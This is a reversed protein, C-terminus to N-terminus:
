YLKDTHDFDGSISSSSVNSDHFPIIAVTLQEDTLLKQISSM